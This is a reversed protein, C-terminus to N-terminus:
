MELAVAVGHMTAAIRVADNVHDATLGGEIVVKEHSRICSECGNITSVALCLLEFDTKNTAPQAIRLMRLRAPKHAYEDKGVLHRFRYYVNNMGMLAAAAKADEVVEPSVKAQADELVAAKLQPNRSAIACAVAVGWVQAENLTGPELVAGLNLRLDKASDPIASKLSELASM